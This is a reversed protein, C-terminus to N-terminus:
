PILAKCSEVIPKRCVIAVPNKKGVQKTEASLCDLGTM